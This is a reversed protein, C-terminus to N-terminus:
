ELDAGEIVDAAKRLWAVLEPKEMWPLQLGGDREGYDSFRMCGPTDMHVKLCFTSSLDDKKNMNFTYLKTTPKM